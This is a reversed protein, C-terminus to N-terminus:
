IRCLNDRTQLSVKNKGVELVFYTLSEVVCVDEYM